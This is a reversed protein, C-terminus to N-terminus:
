VTTLRAQAGSAGTIYNVNVFLDTRRTLLGGLAVNASDSFVPRAFGELYGVEDGINPRPMGRAASRICSCPPDPRGSAVGKTARTPPRGSDPTSRTRHHGLWYQIRLFTRRSRSLPKRYDVGINLNQTRTVPTTSGEYTSEQLAYGLRLSASERCGIASCRALVRSM